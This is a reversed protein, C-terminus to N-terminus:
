EAIGMARATRSQGPAVTTGTGHSAHATFLRGNRIQANMLRDDLGDLFGNTGGANGLHPVTLPISTQPVTLPKTNPWPQLVTWTHADAVGWLFSAIQSHNM